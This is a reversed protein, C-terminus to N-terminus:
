LFSNPDIDIQLRVNTSSPVNKLWYKLLKQPSISPDTKILMRWRYRGRVKALAAPAPGFYEIGAQQPAKRAVAQAFHEVDQLVPGSFILASLKGFPPLGMTERLELERELFCDRDGSLLAKMVPHDPMYTQLLVQGPKQARGARGSVQHLLQYTRETARLDNGELGLDADVVGVLTLDPFHYGKAMMQTGVLIHIRKQRIDELVKEMKQPTNLTDSTLIATRYDPFLKSAEEAVREVGPGCPIYSGEEQCGECTQPWNRNHGCHHCILNEFTQHYTLWSQCHPCALRHGCTECLTLPAYGRRNLFLITQEDKEVTEKIKTILEPSLWKAEKKIASSNEKKRRLDLIEIKPLQAPGYRSTLPLHKYRGKRCNHLSELSPTASALVLPIGEISARLVAMDRGHYISGEEQKFSSEHEEDVVILGLQPYPLFLASRAGIIVSEEGKVIRRWTDRRTAPTLDSHWIAPKVGFRQKFRLVWQASLGIEPLLVLSQKGERINQAIAEMYVETKGSGTVGDLLFTQYTGKESANALAQYAEKQELSLSVSAFQPDPSDPVPTSLPHQLLVGEEILGKTVSTSTGASLAIETATRPQSNLRCDNIIRTRAATVRAPAKKPNLIYGMAPKPPSIADPVSLTMRLISGLPTLTYKAAAEIFRVTSPPIYLDSVKNLLPKLRISKKKHNEAETEDKGWVVGFVEKGRLPVRVIDGPSFTCASLPTSIEYSYPQDVPRPLLVSVSKKVNNQPPPKSAM